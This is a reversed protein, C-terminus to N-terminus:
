DESIFVSHHGSIDVGVTLGKAVATTELESIDVCPASMGLWGTDRGDTGAEAGTAALGAAATGAGAAGTEEGTAVVGVVVPFYYSSAGM